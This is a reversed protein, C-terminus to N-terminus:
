FNGLLIVKLAKHRALGNAEQSSKSGCILGKEENTGKQFRVVWEHGSSTEGRQEAGFFHL